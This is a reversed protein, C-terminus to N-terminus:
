EAAQLAALSELLRGPAEGSPLVTIDLLGPSGCREEEFMNRVCVAFHQPAPAGKRDVTISTVALSIRVEDRGAFDVSFKKVQGGGTVRSLADPLCVWVLDGDRYGGELGVVLDVADGTHLRRTPRGDVELAVTAAAGASFAAWNEEVWQTIQVPATGGTCQVRQIDEDSCAAESVSIVEGTLRVEGGGAVGAQQLERMLSIAAVSDVTSYLRGEDNFASVVLNALKLAAPLDERRGAHLLVSAAYAAEARRGVAGRPVGDRDKELAPDQAIRKQVFSVASESVTRTEETAFRLMLYAERCSTPERPPMEIGYARGADRAMEAVKDLGVRLAPSVRESKLLLVDYLYPVTMKGWYEDPGNGSHPYMKFGRRPLWMQEERRVGALIISEAKGCGQPDTSCAYMACASLMIAATQECCAHSYSATAQVLAQFSTSLGPLVRLGVRNPDDALAVSEGAQLLRLSQVQTRLKGPEQVRDAARSRAGTLLDEVRAEYAGASALFYVDARKREVIAEEQHLRGDWVFPIPVGDRTVAVRM